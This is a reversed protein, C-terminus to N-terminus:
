KLLGLRAANAVVEARSRAGIKALLHSVHAAVTHESMFLRRGVERNTLGAGLLKLVELERETIREAIGPVVIARPRDTQSLRARRALDRLRLLEIPGDLSEAIKLGRRLPEAAPQRKGTALVVEAARRLPRLALPLAGIEEWGDAVRTWMESTARGEVTALEAEAQALWNREVPSTTAHLRLAELANNVIAQEVDSDAARDGLEAMEAMARLGSAVMPAVAHPIEWRALRTLAEDAVRRAEQPRGHELALRIELDSLQADYEGGTTAVSRRRGEGAAATAEDFRGRGLAIEARHISREVAANGEEPADHSELLADAEVWRGLQVLARIRSTMVIEAYGFAGLDRLTQVGALAHDSAEDFRGMLGLLEAENVHTRTLLLPDGMDSADRRATLLQDLGLAPEGLFGLAAGHTISAGVFTTRDGTDAALKMAM